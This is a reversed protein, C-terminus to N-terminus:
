LFMFSVNLLVFLIVSTVLHRAKKTPSLDYEEIAQRAEQLLEDRGEKLHRLLSMFERELASEWVHRAKCTSKYKKSHIRTRCQWATFLYKEGNRESTLRRRVIPHGCEGCYLINSFCSKNSYAQKYKGDPNKFM